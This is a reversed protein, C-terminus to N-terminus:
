GRLDIKYFEHIVGGGGFETKFQHLGDNLYEGEKETSVGFSLYQAGSSISQNICYDFVLDIASKDQGKSNSAIYQTHFANQTKFLVVGCIVEQELKGVVCSINHPFLSSLLHIEELSHVPKVKHKTSLNDELIQWFGSYENVSDVIYVSNKQAKNLSRLRRQSPRNRNPVNIAASLDCRYRMASLRFLAYLDDAAPVRHYIYPVAKYILKKFNNQRYFLCVQELAEVMRAGRLEGNHVIGGYTIGPHSIVNDSQSPDVAAPFIGILRHKENEIVISMDAFRDGHYSLFRRSHLFTGNWSNNVLEDWAISDNTTFKRIHINM